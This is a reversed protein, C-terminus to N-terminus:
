NIILLKFKTWAGVPQGNESNAWAGRGHVDTGSSIDVQFKTPISM